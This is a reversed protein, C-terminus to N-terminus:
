ERNYGRSINHRRPVQVFSKPQKMQFRPNLESVHPFQRGHAAVEQVPYRTPVVVRATKSRLAHEHYRGSAARNYTLRSTLSGRGSAVSSSSSAGHTRASLTGNPETWYQTTGYPNYTYGLFPPQAATSSAPLQQQQQQAALQSAYVSQAQASVNNYYVPVYPPQQSVVPAGNYFGAASAGAGNTANYYVRGTNPQITLVDPQPPQVAVPVPVPVYAVQQQTAAASAAAAAASATSHVDPFSASTLKPPDDLPAPPPKPYCKSAFHKFDFGGNNPKQFHNWLFHLEDETLIIHFHELSKRLQEIDRIGDERPFFYSRQLTFWARRTRIEIKARIRSVLETLTAASELSSM